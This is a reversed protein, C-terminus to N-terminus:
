LSLLKGISVGAAIALGGILLMRAGHKVVSTKYIKASIAGLLFLGALSLIISIWFATNGHFIVYPLLPVLGSISYSFFMIVAVKVTDRMPIERGHYYEAASHESVLSGAAMSLAEVVILVMGSLLITSRPIGAVAIGSLLGVTSVLSDEVGFVFNRIYAAQTFRIEKSM